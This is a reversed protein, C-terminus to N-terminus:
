HYQHWLFVLLRLLVNWFGWLECNLFSFFLLWLSGCCSKLEPFGWWIQGVCITSCQRRHLRLGLGISITTILTVSTSWFCIEVKGRVGFDLSGFPPPLALPLSNYGPATCRRRISNLTHTHTHALSLSLAYHSRPKFGQIRNRLCPPPFRLSSHDTPSRSAGPGDHVPRTSSPNAVSWYSLCNYM